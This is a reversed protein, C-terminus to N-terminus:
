AGGTQRRLEAKAEEDIQRLQYMPDTLWEAEREPLWYRFPANKHGSGDRHLVGEAVARQLWRWLTQETPSGRGAPLLDRLGRRTLKGPASAFYPVLEAWQERFDVDALTGHAVYDCGDATWEIVQQRPTAAHRSWARLVRRRDAEEAGPYPRMEIAIDVFAPLAGTGRAAQGALAAGKRPHHLLLVAMGWKQLRELPLLAELMLEATNEGRGPLFWALPDFVALDVGDRHLEGVSDLLGLWETMTLKRGLVPRCFFAVDNGFDLGRRRQEWFGEHEESVVATRGPRLARGALSGGAARRALLVSLLTTKGSKWQSTLLTIEKAALYGDWLWAMDRSAPQFDRSWVPVFMPPPAVPEDADDDLFADDVDDALPM